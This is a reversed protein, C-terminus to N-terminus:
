RVAKELQVAMGERGGSRAFDAASMTRENRLSVSAGKALLLKVSDESGYRAAMMLATNGNPARSDIAVGKDLLMAVIAVEPGTAAYHLPTWGPKDALAGRALMRRTWEVHGKLAAMMLPTEGVANAADLEIQPHSLLAEAAKFSGDRFALFLGHQGREDRSNVDFGRQLLRTLASPDNLEIAKFFDEFAGAQAPAGVLLLTAAASILCAARAFVFWLRNM